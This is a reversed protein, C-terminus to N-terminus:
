FSHQLTMYINHRLLLVAIVMQWLGSSATWLSKTTTTTAATTTTMVICYIWEGESIIWRPVDRTHTHTQAYNPVRASHRDLSVYVCRMWGDVGGEGLRRDNMRDASHTMAVCVCLVVPWCLIFGCACRCMTLDTMHRVTPSKHTGNTHQKNCGADPQPM